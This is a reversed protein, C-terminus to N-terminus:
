QFTFAVDEATVRTGDQWTADPRLEFTYSKGKPDVTWSSALDPLLDGGPGLRVLGSFVLAVLQRDAATEASIPTISTWGGLVGERYVTVPPTASAAPTPSPAVTAAPGGASQPLAVLVAVFGLILVLALVTGRDRRTM